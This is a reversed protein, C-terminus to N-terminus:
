SLSVNFEQSYQAAFSKIKLGFYGNEERFLNNAQPREASEVEVGEESRKRKAHQENVVVSKDVTDKKALALWASMNKVSSVSVKRKRHLRREKQGKGASKPTRNQEESDEIPVNEDDTLITNDTCNSQDLQYEDRLEGSRKKAIAICHLLKDVSVNLDVEKGSNGELSFSDESVAGAM